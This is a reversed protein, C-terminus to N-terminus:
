IFVGIRKILNIRIIYRERIRGSLHSGLSLGYVINPAASVFKEFQVVIVDPNM